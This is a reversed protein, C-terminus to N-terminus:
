QFSDFYSQVKDKTNLSAEAGEYKYLNPHEKLEEHQSMDEFFSAIAKQTAHNDGQALFALLNQHARAKAIKLFDDRKLGTPIANPDEPTAPAPEHNQPDITM